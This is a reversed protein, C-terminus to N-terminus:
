ALTCAHNLVFSCITDEDEETEEKEEDEEDEESRDDPVHTGGERADGDGVKLAPVSECRMFTLFGFCHTVSASRWQGLQGAIRQDM